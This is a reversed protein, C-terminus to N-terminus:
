DARLEEFGCRTIATTSAVGHMMTGLKLSPTAPAQGAPEITTELGHTTPGDSVCNDAEVNYTRLMLKSFDRVMAAGDNTSGNM